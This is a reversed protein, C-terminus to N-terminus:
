CDARRYRSSSRARGIRFEVFFVWLREVLRRPVRRATRLRSVDPELAPSPNPLRRHIASELRDPRLSELPAGGDRKTSTTPAAFHSATPFRIAIKANRAVIALADASIDTATVPSRRHANVAIAIAIAGSGHHRCRPCLPDRMRSSPKNSHPQWRLSLRRGRFSCQPASRSISRISNRQPRSHIRAARTEGPAGANCRIKRALTEVQRRRRETRSFEPARTIGAAAAM